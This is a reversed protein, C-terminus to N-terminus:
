INFLPNVTPADAQHERMAELKALSLCEAYIAQNTMAMTPESWESKAMRQLRALVGAVIGDSYTLLEDGFGTAAHSPAVAVKGTVAIAQVESAAPVLRVKNAGIPLYMRPQTGTEVAWGPCYNNLASEVGSPLPFGKYYVEIIGLIETDTGTSLDYTAIQPTMPHFPLLTIPEITSQWFWSERCFHRITDKVKNIVIAQPCGPVEPLIQTLLEQYTAM